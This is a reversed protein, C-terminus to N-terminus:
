NGRPRLGARSADHAARFEANPRWNPWATGSAIERGVDHLLMLDQMAGVFNWNAELEDSPRHYNRSVYEESLQRGRAQGGNLMDIGGGTYLSPVGIRALNLHDSRYYSGHEPYAEPVVVRGAAAARRALIDELESKGGGVLEVDRTPGFINLGDMNILAVTNRPPFVPQAAYYASGVLGQEEATFAIFALSRQPRGDAAFRRALEILGAVGTANDLAGNCIDDGTDDPPCHGLHDWHASYMVVERPRSRGRLLGVVNNSVFERQAIDLTLAAKLDGMQVPTFDPRQARRKEADFDLGVRAFLERGVAETVWGEFPARSAGRDPPVMDLKAGSNSNDVVSWPYAAPATEHIILAGAAGQRAVEEFKYVWRGYYTMARGGFGRDDGTEFDPDNILIVAIKGTMDIGAYDNWGLTPNVVGYGAFVLPADAVSIQPELRKSWAVFQTRWAYSRAGDGGAITLQPAGQVASSALPTEQLWSSRGQADRAGPVLGAAEFARSIYALTKAEGPTGPFRGEYADSALEAVHAQLAPPSLPPFRMAALPEQAFAGPQALALSALALATLASAIVRM